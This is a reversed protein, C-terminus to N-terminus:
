EPVSALKNLEEPDQSGNLLKNALQYSRSMDMLRSMEIQPQVNSKEIAGTLLNTSVTIKPTVNSSFLNEGASLLNAFDPFSVLRLTGLEGLRTSILGRRDINVPGANAPVTVTGRDTLVPQGNMTVLQGAGDLTFAGTRTYREGKVTRVVFYANGDIALDLSNGTFKIAGASPDRYTLSAAVMSLPRESKGGMQQDREHKLYEQFSIQQARFGTTESNAVNSAVVDLGQGLAMLRSLHILTTESMFHVDRIMHRHWVTISFCFEAIHCISMLM